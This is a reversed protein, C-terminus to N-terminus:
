ENKTFSKQLTNRNLVFFYTTAGIKKLFEVLLATSTMGDVDNDGYILIFENKSIATMIRNVAKDM